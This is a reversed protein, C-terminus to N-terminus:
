WTRRLILPCSMPPFIESRVCATGRAAKQWRWPNALLRRPSLNTAFPTPDGGDVPLMRPPFGFAIDALHEAQVTHGLDRPTCHPGHSDAGPSLCRDISAIVCQRLRRALALFIQFIHRAPDPWVIPLPPKPDPSHRTRWNALPNPRAAGLHRKASPQRQPAQRGNAPCGRWNALEGVGVPRGGAGGERKQQWIRRSPRLTDAGIADSCYGTSEHARLPGHARRRAM